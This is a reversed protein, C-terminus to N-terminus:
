QDLMGNEVLFGYLREAAERASLGIAAAGRATAESTRRLRPPRLRAAQEDWAIRATDATAPAFAELIQGRKAKAYASQRPAPGAQGVTLVAPLDVALRRRRGGPRAQLVRAEGAKMELAVVDAVIPMGTRAAILYPLMGSGEGRESRAGCLVLRPRHEQLFSLLPPVADDAPGMPGVVFVRDLGMGLYDRLAPNRPDGAHVALPAGGLRLGLELASADAAAIRDRRSVPHRGVSLLVAIEDTM